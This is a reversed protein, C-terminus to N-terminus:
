KMLSFMCYCVAPLSTTYPCISLRESFNSELGCLQTSSMSALRQLFLFRKWLFNHSFCISWKEVGPFISLGSKTNLFPSRPGEEKLMTFCRMSKRTLNCWHSGREWVHCTQRCSGWALLAPLGKNYMAGYRDVATLSRKKVHLLPAWNQLSCVFASLCDKYHQFNCYRGRYPSHGSVFRM